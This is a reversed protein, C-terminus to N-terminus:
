VQNLDQRVQSHLGGGGGGPRNAQRYFPTDSRPCLYPPPPRLSEAWHRARIPARHVSYMGWGWRPTSRERSVRVKPMKARRLRPSRSRGTLDGGRGWARFCPPLSLGPRAGARRGQVERRLAQPWCGPAAVVTKTESDLLSLVAFGPAAPPPSDPTHAALHTSEWGPRHRCWVLSGVQRGCTKPTDASSLCLM